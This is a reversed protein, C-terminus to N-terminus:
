ADTSLSAHNEGKYEPKVDPQEPLAGAEPSPHPARRRRILNVTGTTLGEPMFIMVLMLIMGFVVIQDEGSAGQLLLPMVNRLVETLLTIAAAGFIAGWVSALGGVVVMVVLEISFAFSFSSPSVLGIYFAYLGGAISAYLASLVLVMSKVQSVNVGITEAAIESAHVARLARGVRSNVINLSAALLLLAVGWVLAYFPLEGKVAFPGLALPPIGRLGNPGGTWATEKIAILEFVVNLGLTAMALTHGSLRFIPLAILYAMGATILAAGLVALIPPLERRFFRGPRYGEVGEVRRVLEGAGEADTWRRFLVCGAAAIAGRYAVDVCALLPSSDQCM